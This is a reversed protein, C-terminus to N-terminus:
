LLKVWQNLEISDISRNNMRASFVYQRREFGDKDVRGGVARAGDRGSFAM